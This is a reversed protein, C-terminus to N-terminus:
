GVRSYTTALAVILKNTYIIDIWWESFGIHLFSFSVLLFFFTRKQLVELIAYYLIHVDLTALSCRISGIRPRCGSFIADIDSMGGHWVRYM